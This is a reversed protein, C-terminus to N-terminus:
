AAKASQAEAKAEAYAWELWPLLEAVDTANVTAGCWIRLGAPADRYGAIDYAAGEKDLLKTMAKIFPMQDGEELAEFWRDVFKLCVSTTSRSVLDTALFDVWDCGKVWDELTKYNDQSRDIAGQLGGIKEVWNLADM